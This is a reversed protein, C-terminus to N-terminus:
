SRLFWLDLGGTVDNFEADALGVGQSIIFNWRHSIRKILHYFEAESFGGKLVVFFNLRQSDWGKSFHHYLEAETIGM